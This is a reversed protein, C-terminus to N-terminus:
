GHAYRKEIVLHKEQPLNRAISRTQKSICWKQKNSLQSHSGIDTLQCSVSSNKPSTNGHYNKKKPCLKCYDERGKNQDKRALNANKALSGCISRCVVRQRIWCCCMTINVAQSLVVGMALVLVLTIRMQQKSHQHLQEKFILWIIYVMNSHRQTTIIVFKWSKITCTDYLHKAITRILM